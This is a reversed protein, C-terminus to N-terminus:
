QGVGEEDPRCPLKQRREATDAMETIAGRATHVRDTFTRDKRVKIETGSDRPVMLLHRRGIPDMVAVNRCM